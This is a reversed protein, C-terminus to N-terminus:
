ERQGGLIRRLQRLDAAVAAADAEFQDDSMGARRRVTFVVECRDETQDDPLVRLPNYFAQGDPLRVVHDAVGFENAPAFEITVEGMPSSAVWAGDVETVAGDALGAAWDPLNRPDSVYAYAAAPSTEIWVSVYRSEPRQM